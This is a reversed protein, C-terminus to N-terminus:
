EAETITYIPIEFPCAWKTMIVHVIVNDDISIYTKFPMWEFCTLLPDCVELLGPQYHGINNCITKTGLSTKKNTQNITTETM